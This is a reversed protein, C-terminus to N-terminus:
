VQEQRHYLRNQQLKYHNKEQNWQLILFHQIILNIFQSQSVRTNNSHTNNPTSSPSQHTKPLNNNNNTQLQNNLFCRNQITHQSSIQMINQQHHLQNMNNNNISSHNSNNNIIPNISAINIPTGSPSLMNYNSHMQTLNMDMQEMSTNITKFTIDSQSTPEGSYSKSMIPPLSNQTTNELNNIIGYKHWNTKSIEKNYEDYMKVIIIEVTFLIQKEINLLNDTKMTGDGLAIFTSNYSFDKKGDCKINEYNSTISFKCKIKGVGAPLQLLQLGVKVNGIDKYSAGNPAISTCWCGNNYDSSHYFKGNHSKKFSELLKSNINWEFKSYLDMQSLKHYINIGISNQHPKYEIRLITIQCIFKIHSLDSSIENLLMNKSHWGIGANDKKLHQIHKWDCLTQPCYLRAKVTIKSINKSNLSTQLIFYLMVCGKQEKKRGNPYVKCQFVFSGCEFIESAFEDGNRANLFKNLGSSAINWELCGSQEAM